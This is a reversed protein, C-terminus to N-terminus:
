GVRRWRQEKCVLGAIACGKVSIQNAGLSRITGTAHMNRKPLFVRGTWGGKGDAKFGSLLNTGVLDPTGGQRADAKAEPSARVVKGCYTAGCKMVEIVVSGKPNTWQGEIPVSPQAMAAASLAIMQAFLLKKM